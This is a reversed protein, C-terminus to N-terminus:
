GSLRKILKLLLKVDDIDMDRVTSIIQNIRQEKKDPKVSPVDINCFLMGVNVGLAEAIKGLTSLSPAQVGREIYGIFNTSLNLLEALQAQTLGKQKRVKQIKEGLKVQLNKMPLMYKLM